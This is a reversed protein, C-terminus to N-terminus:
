ELVARFRPSLTSLGTTGPALGAPDVVAPGERALTTRFRFFTRGLQILDGDGLAAMQVRAGNVLSGNKSDLDAMEWCGGASKLEAHQSSMWGDIVTLSLTHGDVAASRAPGRGCRVREM